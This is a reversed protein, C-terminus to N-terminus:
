QAPGPWNAYPGDLQGARECAVSRRDVDEWKAAAGANKGGRYQLHLSDITGDASWM